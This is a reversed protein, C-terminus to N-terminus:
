VVSKRDADDPMIIASRREKAAGWPECAAMVSGDSQMAWEPAFQPAGDAGVFMVPYNWGHRAM